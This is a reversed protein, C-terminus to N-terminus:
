KGGMEMFLSWCPDQQKDKNNEKGSTDSGIDEEFEREEDAQNQM